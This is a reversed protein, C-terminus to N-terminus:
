VDWHDIFTQTKINVSIMKISVIISIPSVSCTFTSVAVCHFMHKHFCREIDSDDDSDLCVAPPRLEALRSEERRRREKAREEQEEQEEKQLLHFYSHGQKVALSHQRSVNSICQWKFFDLAEQNTWNNSGTIVDCFLPFWIQDYFQLLLIYKIIVYLLISIFLFLLYIM